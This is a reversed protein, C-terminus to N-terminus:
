AFCRVLKHNSIVVSSRDLHLVGLGQAEITQQTKLNDSRTEQRWIQFRRRFSGNRAFCTSDHIIGRWGAITTRM